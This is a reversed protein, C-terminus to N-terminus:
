TGAPSFMNLTGIIYPLLQHSIEFNAPFSELYRPVPTRKQLSQVHTQKSPNNLSIFINPIKLAKIMKLRHM